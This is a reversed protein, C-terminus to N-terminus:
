LIMNLDTNSIGVAYFTIESDSLRVPRVTYWLASEQCNVRRCENGFVDSIVVQQDRLVFIETGMVRAPGPGELLLRSRGKFDVKSLQAREAVLLTSMKTACGTTSILIAMVLVKTLFRLVQQM